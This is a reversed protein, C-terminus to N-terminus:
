LLWNRGLLGESTQLIQFHHRIPHASPRHESHGGNSPKEPHAYTKEPHALVEGLDLLQM